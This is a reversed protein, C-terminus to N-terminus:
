KYDTWPSTKNKLDKFYIPKHTFKVDSVFFIGWYDM